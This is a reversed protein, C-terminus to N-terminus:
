DSAAALRRHLKVGLVFTTVACALLLSAYVVFTGFMYAGPLGVMFWVVASVAARRPTIPWRATLPVGLLVAAITLGILTSPLGSWMYWLTSGFAALALTLTVATAVCSRETFPDEVEM